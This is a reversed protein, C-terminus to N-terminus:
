ETATPGCRPSTPVRPILPIGSQYMGGGDAGAGAPGGEVDGARVQGVRHPEFLEDVNVSCDSRVWDLRVRRDVVVDPQGVADRGGADRGTGASRRRAAGPRPSGRRRCCRRTRRSRDDRLRGDAVAMKAWTSGVEAGQMQLVSARRGAEEGGSFGGPQTCGPVGVRARGAPGRWRRRGARGRVALRGVQAETREAETREAEMRVAAM